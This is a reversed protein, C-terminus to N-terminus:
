NEGEAEKAKEEEAKKAKEEEEQKKKLEALAKEKKRREAILQLTEERQLQAYTKGQSMASIVFRDVSPIDKKRGM